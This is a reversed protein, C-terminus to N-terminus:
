VLPFPNAVHSSLPLLFTCSLTFPYSVLVFLYQSVYHVYISFWFSFIYLLITVYFEFTGIMNPFLDGFMEQNLYRLKSIM